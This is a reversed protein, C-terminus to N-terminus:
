QAFIKAFAALAQMFEDQIGKIEPIEMMKDYWKSINAYQGWMKKYVIMCTFDFFCLLDAITPKDGVM